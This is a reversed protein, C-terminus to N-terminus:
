LDCSAGGCTCIKNKTIGMDGVACAAECLDGSAKAPTCLTKPACFEFDPGIKRACVCEAASVGGPCGQLARGDGTCVGGTQLVLFVSTSAANATETVCVCRADLVSDAAAM